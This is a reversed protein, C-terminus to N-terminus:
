GRRRGRRVVIVRIRGASGGPLRLTTSAGTFTAARSCPLPAGGAATAVPCAWARLPGTVRRGRRVTVTRTARGGVRRVTARRVAATQVQPVQSGQSVMSVQSVALAATALAQGSVNRVAVSGTSLVGSAVAASVVPGVYRASWLVTAGGSNSATERVRLIAGLESTDIAYSSVNPAGVSVCTSTCSM